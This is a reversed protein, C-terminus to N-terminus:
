GCRIEQNPYVVLMESDNGCFLIHDTMEEFTGVYDCNACRIEQTPPLRKLDSPPVAM